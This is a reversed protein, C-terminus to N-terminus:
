LGIFESQDKVVNLIVNTNTRKIKPIGLIKKVLKSFQSRNKCMVIAISDYPGTIDYVAVVGPLASIKKQTELLNGQEITLQVLGMYEYGINSYDLNASYGKIIKSNELKKMREILTATSIQLKHALKRYSLRSNKMLEILIEKDLEDLIQETNM